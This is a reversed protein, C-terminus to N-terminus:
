CLNSSASSPTSSVDFTFEDEGINAKEYKAGLEGSKGHFHEPRDISAYLPWSMKAPLSTWDIQGHGAYDWMSENGHGNFTHGHPGHDPAWGIEVRCKVNHHTNALWPVISSLHAMTKPCDETIIYKWFFSWTYTDVTRRLEVEKKGGRKQHGQDKENREFRDVDVRCTIRNSGHATKPCTSGAIVAAPCLLAAVLGASLASKM